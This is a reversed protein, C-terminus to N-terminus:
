GKQKVFLKGSVKTFTLETEGQYGESIFLDHFREQTIFVASAQAGDSKVVDDIARLLYRGIGQHQVHPDVAFLSIFCCDSFSAVAQHIAKEKEILQNTSLVGTNLMLKLRWHWVRDAALADNAKQVCSVALLNDGAFVGIIHQHSQWFSALEERILLRLKKEYAGKNAKDYGLIQQFLEDDHYAQYLVSAAIKCDEATLYSAKLETDLAPTALTEDAM